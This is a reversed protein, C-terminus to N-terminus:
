IKIRKSIKARCVDCTSQLSTKSKIRDCSDCVAIHMCDLYLISPPDELCIVCKEQRYTEIPPPLPKLVNENNLFGRYLERLVFLMGYRRYPIINHERLFIEERGLYYSYFRVCIRFPSNLMQEPFSCTVRNTSSSFLHINCRPNNLNYGILDYIDYGTGVGPILEVLVSISDIYNREEEYILTSIIYVIFPELCKSRLEKMNSVDIGELNEIENSLYHRGINFVNPMHIDTDNGDFKFRIKHKLLNAVAMDM